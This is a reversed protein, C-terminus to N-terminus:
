GEQRELEMLWAEHEPTGYQQYPDGLCNGNSTGNTKCIMCGYAQDHSNHNCIECFKPFVVWDICPGNIVNCTACGIDGWHIPHDCDPCVMLYDEEDM